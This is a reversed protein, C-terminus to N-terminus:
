QQYAGRDVGTAPRPNGNIDTPPALNSTGTAIAPSSSQLKLSVAAPTSAAPMVYLPNATQDHPGASIGVLTNTGGYYQNYDISCNSTCANSMVVPNQGPASYFINNLINVDSAVNLNMEGRGTLPPNTVNTYTSNNVVDVHASEFVEIADSGNNFIVNNAILTRGTYPPNTNGGTPFASNKTSDVIIAEGDTITPPNTGSVPVLEENAYLINGQVIMKYKTTTDAPNSDFNSFTSIGSNGYASYLANAYITNAEITVYDAYTTGIGGGPCNAAINNTIRIHHPYINNTHTNGNVTICSGNTEPHSGPNNDNALAQPLTVNANNGIVTFGSLSIYAATNTFRVVDWTYNNGQLVPTAGPYAQYTIWANPTGPTSIALLAYNNTDNTYTGNMVYVFDGPATADAAHQLTRFPTSTTQGSASDSGTPSVYFTRGAPITPATQNPTAATHTSCGTLCLFMAAVILTHSPTNCSGPVM